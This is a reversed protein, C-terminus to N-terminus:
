NYEVILKKCYRKEGDFIKVFYIGQSINKFNIETNSESFVDVAFINKGLVNIIEIKGLINKNELAISFNGKTPNPFITFIDNGSKEEVGVFGCAVSTLLSARPAINVTARIRDKQGQTFRDRIGCYSMYNNLSNSWVGTATCSNTSGCDGQKHPPTDCVYDGNVFCSTDIPCYTNFGDGEFTHYLFFGHAIEHSLTIDLSDMAYYSITTGDNVNGNPYNAQGVYGNFGQCIQNVIWINYYQSVPWRSLSKVSDESAADCNNFFLSIGHAAYRPLISGDIRNIGSCSIGNPDSSALCFQVEVDIGNGSINRWRNNLGNIAGLIQADSINTGTGIPEGLHIVHVVIPITYITSQLRDISQNQIFDDVQKELILIQKKYSSDKQMLQGHLYGTACEQSKSQKYVLLLCIISLIFNISNKM